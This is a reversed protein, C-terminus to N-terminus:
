GTEPPSSCRVQEEGGVLGVLARSVEGFAEFARGMSIREARVTARRKASALPANETAQRPFACLLEGPLLGAAVFAVTAVSEPTVGACASGDLAVIEDAVM